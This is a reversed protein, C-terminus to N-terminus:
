LAAARPLAGTSPKAGMLATINGLTGAAGSRLDAYCVHMYIAYGLGVAGDTTSTFTRTLEAESSFAANEAGLLTRGRAEALKKLYQVPSKAGMDTTPDADAARNAWTQWPHVNADPYADMQVGWSTGQATEYRFNLDGAGREYRVGWSPHLVHVHGKWGAARHQAVLWTMWRTLADVHWAALAEDRATAASGVPTNRYAWEGPHPSRVMGAALGNGTQAADGHSWWVIQGGGSGHRSSPYNLEGMGLGGVRMTDVLDWDGSQNLAAFSKALFEAVYQRGIATFVWDRIAEDTYLAGTQSRFPPVRDRVYAPTAATSIEGIVRLGAARANALWGRYEAVAHANVGAGAATLWRDWFVQLLVHTGGRAKWDRMEELTYASAIVYASSTAAARVAPTVNLDDFEAYGSGGNPGAELSVQVSTLPVASAKSRRTTWTTGDPSTRWLVSTGDHEIAIWRHQVADYPIRQDSVLGNRVERMVFSGGEVQANVRNESTGPVIASINAFAHAGSYRAPLQVRLRSGTLDYRASGTSVTQVSSSSFRLRGGVVSVGTGRVPWRTTSLSTFPDTLGAAKPTTAARAAAPLLLAHGLAVSAAGLLSRRSMGPGPNEHRRSWTM